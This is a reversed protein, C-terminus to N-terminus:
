SDSNAQGIGMMTAIIKLDGGLHFKVAYENSNLTVTKKNNLDDLISSLSNGL